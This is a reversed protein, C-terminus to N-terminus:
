SSLLLIKQRGIAWSYDFARIILCFNSDKESRSFNRNFFNKKCPKSVLYKVINALIWTIHFSSKIGVNPVEIICKLFKLLTQASKRKQMVRKQLENILFGNLTNFRSFWRDIFFVYSWKVHFNWKIGSNREKASWKQFAKYKRTRKWIKCRERIFRKQWSCTQANFRCSWFDILCAESWTIHLKRKIGTARKKTIWKPLKFPKARKELNEGREDSAWKDRVLLSM